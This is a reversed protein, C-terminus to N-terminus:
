GGERNGPSLSTEPSLHFPKSERAWERGVLASINRLSAPSWRLVLSTPKPGSSDTACQGRPGGGGVRKLEQLRRWSGGAEERRGGGWRWSQHPQM